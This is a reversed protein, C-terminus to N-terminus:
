RRGTATLTAAWPRGKTEGCKHMAYWLARQMTPGDPPKEGCRRCCGNVGSFRRMFERRVANRDTIDPM